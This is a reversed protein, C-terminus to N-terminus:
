LCLSKNHQLKYLPHLNVNTITYQVCPSQICTRQSRDDNLKHDYSKSKFPVIEFFYMKM